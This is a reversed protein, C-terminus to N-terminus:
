SDKLIEFFVHAVVFNFIIEAQTNSLVQKTPKQEKALTLTDTTASKVSWGTLQDVM